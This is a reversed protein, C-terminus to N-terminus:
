LISITKADSSAKKEEKETPCYFHITTSDVAGIPDPFNIFQRRKSTMVKSIFKNVLIPFYHVTVRKVVRKLTSIKVSVIASFEENTIYSSCYM